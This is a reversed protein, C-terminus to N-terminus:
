DVKLVQLDALPVGHIEIWICREAIASANEETWSIRLDGEERAGTLRHKESPVQRVAKDKQYGAFIRSNKRIIVLADQEVSVV